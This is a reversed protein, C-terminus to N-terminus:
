VGPYHLPPYINYLRHFMISHFSSCFIHRTMTNLVVKWLIEIIEHLDTKDTSSVVPGLSFWQGTELWQCVKDYLITHLAGWECKAYYPNVIALLSPPKTIETLPWWPRSRITTPNVLLQKDGNNWPPWNQRHLFGCPGSFVVSRDWTV